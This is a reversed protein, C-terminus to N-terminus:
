KWLLGLGLGGAIYLWLPLEVGFAAWLVESVGWGVVFVLLLSGIFRM